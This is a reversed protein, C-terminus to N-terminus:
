SAETTETTQPTNYVHMVIKNAHRTENEAGNQLSRVADETDRVRDELDQFDGVLTGHADETDRVRDELDQYDGELTYIDDENRKVRRFTTEQDERIEAFDKEYHNLRKFAEDAFAQIKRDLEDVKDSLFQHKSRHNEALNYFLIMISLVLTVAGAIASVTARTTEDFQFEFSNM